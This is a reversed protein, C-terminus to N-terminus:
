VQIVYLKNFEGNKGGQTISDVYSLDEANLLELTIAFKGLGLTNTDEETITFDFRGNVADVIQGITERDSNMTIVKELLIRADATASGLVRFRIAGLTLDMPSFGQGTSNKTQISATFVRTTGKIVKADIYMDITM